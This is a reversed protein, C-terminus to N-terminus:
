RSMRLIDDTSKIPQGGLSEALAAEMEALVSPSVSKVSARPEPLAAPRTREQLAVGKAIAPLDLGMTQGERWHVARLGYGSRFAFPPHDVDLADAFLSSDGLNYWVQHDKAAILRTRNQYAVPEPGNARVWRAPWGLSGSDVSGRPVRREEVRVLEWWPFQKVAMPQLGNEKQVMGRLLGTQTELILDLRADSRLDQLSGPEAPPIGLAEDGPFGREPTYELRQLLVKLRLRVAPVDNDDGGALVENVADFIGTLYDANAVRASFVANRRMSRSLRARAESSGMSLPLIGRDAARELATNLTSPELRM